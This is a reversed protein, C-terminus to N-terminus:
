FKDMILKLIPEDHEWSYQKRVKLANNKCKNLFADDSILKKIADRLEDINQEHHVLGLENGLIVKEIEPFNSGISAIGAMICEMLKNPLSIYHNLTYHFPQLGVDASAIVSLLQKYPVSDKIFIRHQLNLKIIYSFLENKDSGEGLFVVTVNDLTKVADVVDFVGRVRKLLGQYILIKNDLPINFEHRLLNTQKVDQYPSCNRLVVVDNLGYKEKLHDAGTQSVMIVVPICKIIRKEIVRWIYQKLKSSSRYVSGHFWIEHSDYIIKARTFKAILFAVLLTDLDNAYIINPRNFVGVIFTLINYAITNLFSILLLRIKFNKIFFYFRNKWNKKSRKELMTISKTRVKAYISSFLPVRIITYKRKECIPLDIYAKQAIVVVSYGMKLISNVTKEVRADNTYANRVLSLVKRKM